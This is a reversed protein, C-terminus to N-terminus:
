QWIKDLIDLIDTDSIERLCTYTIKLYKSIRARTQSLDELVTILTKNSDKFTIVTYYGRNGYKTYTLVDSINEAEYPYITKDYNRLTSIVESFYIRDTWLKTVSYLLNAYEKTTISIYGRNFTDFGQIGRWFSRWYIIKIENSRDFCLIYFKNENMRLSSRNTNIAWNLAKLYYDNNCYPYDRAIEEPDVNNLESDMNLNTKDSEDIDTSESDVLDKEEVIYSKKSDYKRKLLNYKSNLRRIISLLYACTLALVLVLIWLLVYSTEIGVM